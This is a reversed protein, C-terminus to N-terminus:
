KPHTHTHTYMHLCQPNQFTFNNEHYNIFVMTSNELIWIIPLERSGWQLVCIIYLFIYIRKERLLAKRKFERRNMDVRQLLSRALTIWTNDRNRICLRKFGNWNPKLRVIGDESDRCSQWHGGHHQLREKTRNESCLTTQVVSLLM